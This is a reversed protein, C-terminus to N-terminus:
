QVQLIGMMGHDEHDLIHCHFMWKGPHAEYRVIFRVASHRPVNVTDKWCPFPEPIGDRDLVQFSFGHLHFPHDMGVVNEMEWIETAGLPAALDVRTMDFEHGNIFGQELVILRTATAQAPDLAPVKRLTPPITPPVMPPDDSVQLTLLDRPQDWDPPRTQPVYRDYPLTELVSHSGPAGTGRVLLEVRESPALLIEGVEVPREFLGADSGIYLFTHGQLALRYYRAASANVLRWRQVEGSRITVTPDIQGNVFLVDGERGNEEDIRTPEAVSGDPNFRNDTLILLRDPLTTPLPDEAPRVVFTGYLGRAVQAGTRHHPHPHYWYTGATGPELTFVYDYSGGPMVPDLPSGDMEVPLHIGHWHITTPEPLHNRFHVIVHDGEHAELTPGPVCGNFAYGRTIQDPILHLRAPEATLNVEVTQPVSSLNALVPPNNLPEERSATGVGACAATALVGFWAFQRVGIPLLGCPASGGTPRHDPPIPM